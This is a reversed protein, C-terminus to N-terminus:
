KLWTFRFTAGKGVESEVSIEGGESEVIKKVISLGIGTNEETDRAKLTQFIEFIRDRHEPAIGVGNDAVAFEYAKGRDRVSVEIRGDSRDSHKIANGILNSFVQLLLLRKTVLLPMPPKIEVTFTDPPNLSDLIEVLLKGVDVTEKAVESRGVRSYDLLGDILQRMRDVRQRLLQMQHRNEESLQGSLDEEIWQSLNAIARLPAKLDHSVVYTFRDLEQNRQTLQEAIEQLFTNSEELALEAQKRETIEQCVTNIGIVRDGDRLPFFHELWTRRVGPQAPTEGVIEVNLLTEGALVRRLIPESEDALNPLLERVTRGSHEEVSFGNIEALRQNIRVFRLDTDIVNLGIPATQYISEIEALQRRITQEAQKRDTIDQATGMMRVPKGVEDYFTRGKAAIWRVTGDPWVTRYEIQYDTRAAVAQLVAADTRDRDDPHLAQLFREYSMAVAPDLGFLQKCRSTWELRDEVIDWFWMGVDSAETALRLREESNRLEMETQQREALERELREYLEAQQLVIGVQIALNQLLQVESTQWQRPAVCHHAILLGWLNEGQKIPVVLNARVQFKKLLEAHCSDIAVRDLNHKVTVLGQRFPEIYSEVLCPDYIESSRIPSVNPSVSEALVIGKGNEGLRFVIARDTRLFQRVELVTAELIEDVRLSQRIREQMRMLLREREISETQAIAIGVQTTLQKVLDIEQTKWQRSESCQNAVLLGWLSDGQEIPVALNARIQFRDLLDLYCQALNANHIDAVAQIRGNRYDEGGTERFCTDEVFTGLVPLWGDGLSEAVVIGSWDPEFRYILVRDCELFQRLETVTTALIEDINTRSLIQNAIQAISKEREIQRQREAQFQRLQSRLRATDIAREIAVKLEDPTLKGKVLYDSAGAKMATVAVKEDGQGTFLIIPCHHYSPQQRVRELFELGDSDPLQYDLLIIDPQCQQCLQLGEEAKAAEIVQYDNQEPALLYRVITERDEPSDEVLLVVISEQSKSASSPDTTTNGLDRDIYM